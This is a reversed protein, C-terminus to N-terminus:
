PKKAAATEEGRIIALAKDKQPDRGQNRDELEYVIEIDPMVGEDNIVRGSPTFWQAITIKVASGDELQTYDQVSGKGFTKTGVLTALGYDQLAGAVIESASASGGDVLVVTKITELRPATVGRFSEESQPTKEIMVDRYGVWASAVDIASTLLGGPNSRLDLVIGKPDKPLIENIVRNFLGSSDNNFTYLSIVAIHDETMEWKVSKIVITGRVIPVDKLDKLGDRTIGLTVTTGAEGRIKMVAAEVTLGETSAADIMMIKDGPLLGAREAPTDPLPAIVILQNERIGIEAGIGQFEGRLSEQFAQAEEPDFFNTYPDGAAAVMGRLAGYYLDEDSVPQKFHKDKVLDWVNWFLDFDLDLEPQNEAMRAVGTDTVQSIVVDGGGRQAGLTWGTFFLALAVLAATLIHGTHFRGMRYKWDKLYAFIRM